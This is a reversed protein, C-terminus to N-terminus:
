FKRGITLSVADVDGDEIQYRSMDGRVVYNGSTTTYKFGIGFAAGRFRPRGRGRCGPNDKAPVDLERRHRVGTPARDNLTCLCCHRVPRRARGTM